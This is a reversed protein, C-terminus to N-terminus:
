TPYIQHEDELVKKAGMSMLIGGSEMGLRDMSTPPCLSKELLLHICWLVWRITRRPQSQDRHSPASSVIYNSTPPLKKLQRPHHSKPTIANVPNGSAQVMLNEHDRYDIIPSQRQCHITGLDANYERKGKSRSVHPLCMSHLPIPEITGDGYNGGCGRVNM